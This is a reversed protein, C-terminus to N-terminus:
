LKFKYTLSPLFQILELRSPSLQHNALVNVPVEPFYEQQQIKNFKVYYSNKTGLANFLSFNLQHQYRSKLNKNLRLTLALDIRHYAPLRANNRKDYIPVQKGLYTYYGVPATFPSGSFSTWFLSANLRNSFAYNLSIALDHPRDHNAPYRRGANLDEIKKFVRSYTYHAAAKLKGFDKKWFLELGYADAKGFRLQGELLENFYIESHGDFEIQNTMKKYYGSARFEMSQETWNRLYGLTWQHAQQPRINPSATLWIEMATFPSISNSILQLYQHYLGYSFSLRDKQNLQRDLSFRPDLNVYSNYSGTQSEVVEEVEYAEDFRYHTMPGFNDWNILRLGASLRLRDSLAVQSHYYGVIKRGFNRRIDPLIANATDRTFLGPNNFYGQIEVGFKSTINANLYHTFDSKLSLTGLESKWSNPPFVATYSYNGTYLTTNTFLRKSLIRNWRFTAAFNGWNISNIQNANSAFVDGSSIATIFFRNKENPRYNWKFHFDNFHFDVDDTSQRYLPEFASRRFSAFISSREKIVPIEVAFQNVLPNVAGSFSFKNLNGDRTRISVISSLRDGINSPMDSKYVTIHSAFDPMVMSTLGLLHSPNFIPADDVYVINQDREGGRVFYFSSLDSHRKIGPLSELGKVLGTEGVLGPIRAWDRNTLEVSNLGSEDSSKLSSEVIIEPLNTLDPALSLRLVRDTKLALIKIHERYGLYSFSVECPGRRLPLAFYGFENTTTGQGSIKDFVTAYILSEGTLSDTLFGTLMYEPLNSPLMPLLVIQDAVWKYQIFYKECIANMTQPLPMEEIDFSAVLSPDIISPNYSFQIETLATITHLVNELSASELQLTVRMSDNTQAPSDVASYICFGFLLVTLFRHRLLHFM